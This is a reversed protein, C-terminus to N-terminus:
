VASATSPGLSRDECAPGSRNFAAVPSPPALPARQLDPVDKLVRWARGATRLAAGPRRPWLLFESLETDSSEVGDSKVLMTPHAHMWRSRMTLPNVTGAVEEMVAATTLTRRSTPSLPSPSLAWPRGAGAAAERARLLPRAKRRRRRCWPPVSVARAASPGLSLVFSQPRRRREVPRRRVARRRARAQRRVRRLRRAFEESWPDGSRGLAWWDLSLPDVAHRPQENM